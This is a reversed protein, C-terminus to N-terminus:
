WNSVTPKNTKPKPPTPAGDNRFAQAPRGYTTELNRAAKTMMSDAVDLQKLLAANKTRVGAFSTPDTLQRELIALDPGALAGLQYLDKMGMMVATYKAALDATNEDKAFEFRGGAWGPLDVGSMQVTGGRQIAARYAKLNSKLDALKRAADNFAAPAPGGPGQARAAASERRERAQAVTLNGRSIDIQQAGQGEMVRAHRKQEELTLAKHDLEFRDKAELTGKLLTEQLQPFAAPNATIQAILAEGQRPDMEGAESKQRIVEIAQEPSQISAITKVTDNAQQINFELKAKKAQFQKAETDAISAQVQPILDGRGMGALGTLLKNQDIRGDPTVATSYLRRMANQESLAAEEREQTRMQNKMAMINAANSFRQQALANFDPLQIPQVMLPIRTDLAM